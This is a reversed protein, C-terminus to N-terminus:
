SLKGMELRQFLEPQEEKALTRYSGRNLNGLIINMIRVRKLDKVQYGLAMTMRRIQHRKGETLIIKFSFDSVKEVVAPKTLYGEINVGEKMKHLFRSNIKKDVKIIYEKEHEYKPNLLKDVIRGDNTLLMLGHSEKDLRGVPFFKKGLGSVDEVGKEKKQPNHSVIGKPKYYAFYKYTLSLNRVEKTVEVVDHANVKQGLVARIGNITIEGKEILEDAKRRSCYEKLFLYRNIRIPYKIEEM